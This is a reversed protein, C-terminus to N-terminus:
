VQQPRTLSYQINLSQYKAGALTNYPLQEWKATGIIKQLATLNTATNTIGPILPTRVLFPKGSNKLLAFNQLILKNSVGTYKLHAANNALKLDMIIFDCQALVKLFVKPAGAPSPASFVTLM